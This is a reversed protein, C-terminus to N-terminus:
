YIHSLYNVKDVNKKTFIMWDGVQPSFDVAARIYVVKKREMRVILLGRKCFSRSSLV